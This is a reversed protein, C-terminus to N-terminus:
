PEFVATVQGHILSAAPENQDLKIKVNVVRADSLSAPDLQALNDKGVKQGIYDVTGHLPEKIGDGTINATQGLHVRNIDSEFVEAIVYMHGTRALELLGESGVQEGKHAHITLVRGDFPASIISSELEAKARAVSAEASQVEAEALQVDAERIEDVGAVRSQEARIAETTTEVLLKRQNREAATASGKNYLDEYRDAERKADALVAQLRAIEAMGAAADSKKGGSKAVALRQRAVSIRASLDNVAAEMQRRSDLVAIVQGAKVLDGEHVRLEGVISPQGSISRASVVIIGDLPEVRGLSAVRRPLDTPKATTKTAARASGGVIHFFWVSTGAAVAIALSVGWLIARNKRTM